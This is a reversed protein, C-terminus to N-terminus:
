NGTRRGLVFGLQDGTVAAVILLLNLTLTDLAPVHQPHGPNSIVGATILLSDGPLFFGLLLGTEAFIIGFLAVVGGAQILSAIGESSYLQKLWEFMILLPGIRFAPAAGGPSQSYGTSCTVGSSVTRAAQRASFTNGSGWATSKGPVAMGSWM